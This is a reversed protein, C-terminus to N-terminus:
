LDLVIEETPKSCCILINGDAPPELPEPSYSVTGSLLAVECTHCVGTRCSWRVAVDCSEALDLLGDHRDNWPVTLGSRAFSVTPGDGPPGPPQHPLVTSATLGPTIAGQAGFIETHVREGPVGRTALADRLTEMFATPGCLYYEGDVPVAATDLTEPTVHGVADYDAGARDSPDPQSYCIHRHV